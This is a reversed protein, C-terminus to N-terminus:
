KRFRCFMHCNDIWCLRSRNSNDENFCRGILNIIRQLNSVNNVNKFFISRYNEFNDQREYKQKDGPALQVGWQLEAQQDITFFYPLKEAMVNMPIPEKPRPMLPDLPFVYDVHTKEDKQDEM